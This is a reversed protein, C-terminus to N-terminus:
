PEAGQIHESGGRLESDGGQDEGAALGGAHAAVFGEDGEGVLGEDLVGEVEEVLEAEL